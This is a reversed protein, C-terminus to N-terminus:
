GAGEGGATRGGPPLGSWARWASWGWWGAFAALLVPHGAWHESALGLAPIQWLCFGLGLLLGPLPARAEGAGECASQWALFPLGLVLHPPLTFPSLLFFGGQVMVVGRAAADGPDAPRRAASALGAAALLLSSAALGALFVERSPQRDGLVLFWASSGRVDLTPHLRCLPDWGGLAFAGLLAATLLGAAAVRVATRGAGGVGALLVPLVWLPFLAKTCLTGLAAAVVAAAERRTQLLDLTGLLFLLFLPEDQTRVVVGHWLLPSLLVALTLRRATAEPFARRAIRFLLLLAGADALVFPLDIGPPYAGGSLWLGAALVLPFLPGYLNDIWPGPDGGGLVARAIPTWVERLDHGGPYGFVHFVALHTGGRTLLFLSAALWAWRRRPCGDLGKWRLAAWSAAAGLVPLVWWTFAEILQGKWNM